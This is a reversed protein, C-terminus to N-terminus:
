IKEMEGYFCVNSKPNSPFGSDKHSFANHDPLLRQLNCVGEACHFEQCHKSAPKPSSLQCVPRVTHCKLALVPAALISIKFPTQNQGWRMKWNMIFWGWWSIFVCCWALSRISTWGFCEQWKFLLRNIHTNLPLRRRFILRHFPIIQLSLSWQTRSKLGMGANKDEWKGAGMPWRGRSSERERGPLGTTTSWRRNEEHRQQRSQRRGKKGQREQSSLNVM